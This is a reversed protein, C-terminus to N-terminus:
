IAVVVHFRLLFFCVDGDVSLSSLNELLGENGVQLFNQVCKELLGFFRRRLQVRGNCVGKAHDGEVDHLLRVVCLLLVFQEVLHQFHWEGQQGLGAPFVRLGGAGEAQRFNDRVDAVLKKPVVQVCRHVLDNLNELAGTQPGMACQQLAQDSDYKVELLLERGEDISENRDQELL